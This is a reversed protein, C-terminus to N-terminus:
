KDDKIRLFKCNLKSKIYNQREIDRDKLNGQEDFHQKEDVEIALNLEPIYGDIFYGAVQYSRIIRYGIEKAIGDLIKKENKGINIPLGKRRELNKIAAKRLKERVEPRKAPNLDGTLERKRLKWNKHGKKFGYGQYYGKEFRGSNDIVKINSYYCKRSCYKSRNNLYDYIEKNCILCNFKSKKKSIRKQIKLNHGSVFRNSVKQKCGCECYKM